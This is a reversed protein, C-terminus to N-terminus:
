PRRTEGEARAEWGPTLTRKLSLLRGLDPSGPSPPPQTQRHCGGDRRPAAAAGGGSPVCIPKIWCVFGGGWGPWVPVHVWAEGHSPPPSPRELCTRKAESREEKGQLGPKLGRGGGRGSAGRTEWSRGTVRSRVRSEEWELAARSWGPLQEGAPFGAWSHSGLTGGLPSPQVGCGEEGAGPSVRRLLTRTFLRPLFLEALLVASGLGSRRRLGSRGPSRAPGDQTGLRSNLSSSALM